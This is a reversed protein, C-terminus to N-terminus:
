LSFLTRFSLDAGTKTAFFFFRASGDSAGFSWSVEQLFCPCDEIKGVLSVEINLEWRPPAQKAQGDERIKCELTWARGAPSLVCTLWVDDKDCVEFVTRGDILWSETSIYCCPKDRRLTTSRGGVGGGASRWTLLQPWSETNGAGKTRIFFAQCKFPAAAAEPSAAAAEAGWSGFLKARAM